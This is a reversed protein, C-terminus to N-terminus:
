IKGRLDNVENILKLITAGQHSILYTLAIFYDQIYADISLRASDAIQQSIATIDLPSYTFNLAVNQVRSHIAFFTFAFGRGKFFGDSQEAYKGYAYITGDELRIAIGRVMMELDPPIEGFVKLVGASIREFALVSSVYAETHISQGDSVGSDIVLEKIKPVPTGLQLADTELAFGAQTITLLM